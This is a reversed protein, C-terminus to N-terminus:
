SRCSAYPFVFSMLVKCARRGARLSDLALPRTKVELLTMSEHFCLGRAIM